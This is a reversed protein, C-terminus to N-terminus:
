TVTLTAATSNVAGASNTLVARYKTATQSALLGSLTLKTTTAGSIGNGDALNAFSTGGNTSIQWQVTPTPSGSVAVTFTASQGVAASQNTPQTTVQPAVASTTVTLTAASTTASGASNTFVARYQNASQSVGLGTLSLTLTTSGAVGNGDTLNTFTAGGNTSIQWQVTPNPSGASAATFTASGGAVGSQNAPQATVQPATTITLSAASSNVSGAPNTLVARYQTANQSALLGSLTLTRTTSGSIGTGDTLNTFTTGNNTSVQWQVTPTPSGNAAVTFTVSQGVAGSQNSPQTTVQPAVPSTTVTLTAVNSAASGASSAFVARYQSGSQSVGLGTVTLTSTSSGVVGNGDTLNTFSAGGNTSVQWQVTPTPVGSSAATFTASGGVVGSQNAPQTTVQPAATVTLTAAASDVSGASNTFVARYQTANQSAVLGSLTLTRTTSGSIGTGDTLNTFTTGNNTSIQWQVTPTPSGSAAVTFTASQGAAASQSSPQTTIQPAVASATVTLTAIGSNVSGASNTFVARYVSGNQSVALGTLTLTSTASGAVGNGDTLNTFTAGGNTSIQWQVTPAPVGNAAATFTTSGGVVGSQSAPQTTVQPASTITLTAATSNVSGAANTFVARYQTANQSSALGTLTLTPTSSGSVGTGDSLNTFTNGGDTSVQWRVTPTPSGSAGASFTVAQGVAGTQNSPQATVQPATPSATVTLNAANSTVSGAASTFVARNQSAALGTLTLTTTASGSVGNGDTLNTFTAGGNTSIQWQVTPTPSGSAAATFTATGAVVGSQNSPQTTIQPAVNVTLSAANSTVTGSANSFVARYQSGNQATTLGTLILTPTASGAVGTGDTLNSFTAGGNTSVQWQVAATPSAAAAATFAASGGAVGTQNAPQSTVQPAFTVTLTGANSIVSGASSTFVARYQAANQAATVASLTLTTTASGAITGGDTLNAFTAGGNISVQWQVTPTPVGSATATFTATRGLAVAVSAPQSLVLPAAGFRQGADGPVTRESYRNRAPSWFSPGSFTFSSSDNALTQGQNYESLQAQIQTQEAQQFANAFSVFQSLVTGAAQRAATTTFYWSEFSNIEQTVVNFSQALIQRTAVPVQLNSASALLSAQDTHLAASVVHAVAFVTARSPLGQLRQSLDSQAASAAALQSQAAQLQLSGATLSQSTATLKSVLDGDLTSLMRAPDLPSAPVVRDELQEM